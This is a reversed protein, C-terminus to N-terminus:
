YFIFLVLLLTISGEFRLKFIEKICRYFETTDNNEGQEITVLAVI